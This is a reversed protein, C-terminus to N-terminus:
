ASILRAFDPPAEGRSLYNYGLEARGEPIELMRAFAKALEEAADTPGAGTILRRSRRDLEKFITGLPPTPAGQAAFGAKMEEYRGALLEKQRELEASLRAADAAPMPEAVTLHRKLLDELDAASTGSRCLPLLTDIKGGSPRRRKGSFYGPRSCYHDALRGKDLVVFDWADGDHVLSALVVDKVAASLAKGVRELLAQDQGETSKPYVSIWGGGPGTIYAPLSGIDRLAEIIPEAASTRAHLNTFFSGM